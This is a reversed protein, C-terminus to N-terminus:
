IEKKRTMAAVSKARRAEQQITESARKKDVLSRCDIYMSIVPTIDTVRAEHPSLKKERDKEARATNYASVTLKKQIGSCPM